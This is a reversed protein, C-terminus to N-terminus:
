QSLPRNFLLFGGLITHPNGVLHSIEGGDSYDSDPEAESGGTYVSTFFLAVVKLFSYKRSQFLEARVFLTSESPCFLSALLWSTVTIISDFFSALKLFHGPM